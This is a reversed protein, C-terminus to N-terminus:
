KSSLGLYFLKYLIVADGFEILNNAPLECESSASLIDFFYSSM